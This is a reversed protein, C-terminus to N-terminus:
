SCQSVSATRVHTKACSRASPAKRGKAHKARIKSADRGQFPAGGLKFRDSVRVAESGREAKKLAPDDTWSGGASVQRRRHKEALSHVGQRRGEGAHEGIEKLSANKRARGDEVPQLQRRYHGDTVPRDRQLQGTRDAERTRNLEGCVCFARFLFIDTAQRNSGKVCM